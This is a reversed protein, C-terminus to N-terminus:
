DEDEYKWKWGKRKKLKKIREEEALAPLPINGIEKARALQSKTIAETIGMKKAEKKARKYDELEKSRKKMEEKINMRKLAIETRGKKTITGKGLGKIGEGLTGLAGTIVRISLVDVVFMISALVMFILPVPMGFYRWGVMVPLALTAWDKWVRTIMVMSALIITLYLIWSTGVFGTEFFAKEFLDIGIEIGM